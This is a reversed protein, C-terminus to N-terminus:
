DNAWRVRGLPDVTVKRAARSMSNATVVYKRREAAARGDTHLHFYIQGQTSAATNFVMLQSDGKPSLVAEGASLSMVFKADARVPHVRSIVTQRDRIRRSAELMTVFVAERKSEGRETWEFICLHHTSGPKVNAHASISRITDDRRYIRVKRIVVGSKMQLPEAWVERPISGAAKKGRSIKFRELRELVIRKIEPDRIEEVMALTLEEVPKRFVFKGKTAIKEGRVDKESVAGYITEEHLAGSVRRRVRHSVNIEKVIEVVAGRFNEWPEIEAGSEGNKYLRSLGQLRGQDTLAVVIADIAHHRHDARNKEGPGLDNKAIWAPSDPLSELVRGLGWLHRLEATYTGKSGLVFQRKKVLCRLYDAAVRGIYATDVLQRAAFEDTDLKEQTFRARKRFPLDAVQQKVADFRDPWGHLWEYPTRDGKEVNMERFCAVKNSFSDDLSRWRPLIHDVDVEGGILQKLSICRGSYVCVGAQEEWLLYKDILDRSPRAGAARIAEAAAARKAERESRDKNYKRRGEPGMKMSRALEVHIRDPKGYERIIANVVRRLEHLAQRVVPNAVKPPEGLSDTEKHERQDPRLYGAETLACGTGDNTMLLLGKEMYPMLKAMAKRSLNMYGRPLDVGLLKQVQEEDLGWKNTALSRIRDEGMRPDALVSLIEDRRTEPLKWWEKGFPSEKAMLYDVVHGKLKSREGEELNFKISEPFGLEKRIQDFTVERTKSLREILVGRQSADLSRTGTAPDVFRLNNVESLIRFRQSIREAKAARRERPEYECRGITSSPWYLNRQGFIAGRVLWTEDGTPDKLKKKLENTLLDPHHPQQTSWLREFERDLMERRTHRGRIRVGPAEGPKAALASLHEGLTRHGADEIEQALASIEKLMDSTEKRKTKDSKSNSLFGRRAGLHLLVRGFEHPSLAHDLGKARLVYPDMQIIKEQKGLDAPLLGHEALVRRLIRKRRARRVIQRRMGRKLQREQARSKEKSTDFADVGEPFVRVGAAIIKGDGGDVLAWGISNPGLDLGLTLSGNM